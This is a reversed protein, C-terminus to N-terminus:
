SSSDGPLLHEPLDQFSTVQDGTFDLVWARDFVSGDWNSPGNQLGFDAALQPIVKHEWCILVMKGDYTPDNKITDVLTQLDDRVINEQIPLGLSTALPSVTEIARVSGEDSGPKMAFIAVPPGFETVITNNKFFQPLAQARQFGRASLENGSAPKEAHRIIVIQAPMCWASTASFLLAVLPLVFLQVKM